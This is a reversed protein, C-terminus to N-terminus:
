ESQWAERVADPIEIRIDYRERLDRYAQENANLRREANLASVVRERIEELAPTRAETRATVRVVHVGVGEDGMLINGIGLILCRARPEDM